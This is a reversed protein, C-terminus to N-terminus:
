LAEAIVPVNSSRSSRRQPLHTLRVGPTGRPDARIACGTVGQGGEDLGIRFVDRYRVAIEGPEPIVAALRPANTGSSATSTGCRHALRVNSTAINWISPM